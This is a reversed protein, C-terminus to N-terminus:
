KSEQEAKEISYVWPADLLGEKTAVLVRDGVHYKKYIGYPVKIEGLEQITIYYSSGRGRRVRTASIEKLEKIVTSSDLYINVEKLGVLVTLYLGIAGLSWGVFLVQALRSSKKMYLLMFVTFLSLIGVTILAASPVFYYRELLKPLYFLSSGDLMLKVVGNVLLAVSFLLVVSVIKSSREMYVHENEEIKDPLCAIIKNMILASKKSLQEMQAETNENAKEEKKVNIILRGDYYRLFLVRYGYEKLSWFLEFISSRLEKDEQLDRCLLEDDSLIYITDDFKKDGSQCEYALSLQKLIKEFRNEFKMMFDYGCKGEVYVTFNVGYKESINMSYHYFLGEARGEILSLDALYNTTHKKHKKHFKIWLYLGGILTIFAVRTVPNYFFVLLEFYEQPFVFM